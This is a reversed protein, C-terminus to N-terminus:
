LFYIMFGIVAYLAGYFPFISYSTFAALTETFRWAGAPSLNIMFLDERKLTGSQWASVIDAYEKIFHRDLSLYFADLFLFMTVPVLALRLLSVQQMNEGQSFALALLATVLTLCYNKCSSSNAAMRSIIGQVIDLHKHFHEKEM